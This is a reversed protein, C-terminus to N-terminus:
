LEKKEEEEDAEDGGEDDASEEAAEEEEADEPVEIEKLPAEPDVGLEKSMLRYVRNVLASPDAIDFGSEILATQFLVQASDHAAKDEKDSKVKALLDVIVPHNPNIELTKRGSMMSLQDKNQFAQAKMVKEQQASYGFQSTVVVVPSDTLRKSIEVKEVKVGADKMAGKETLETLSEKWWDTLPKYMDKVKSFRKKEAETEDLKVDAKQISVFKKGEYDALKQLCPEDLHDPLMLVEIDKKKFIQLSPAKKMTDISDGSMYYISEQSEQMRDLYKDLSVEKDEAKTTFFRLLKSLKSRNSDDEYCGMKLNKNFEKWFKSWAAEDDKKDKKEEPETKEKEEEGDEKEEDDDDGSDEEKALKKMLELVKRVLKKSIVKMIKNQQLQERSVNLPLDDSDVVGRVFNLYRPLLEDFKEAVLVRRVFLKVESKKQWYNDMMDFPAKKPLFLISKFEIEGEANFHTYALPDLYDKSISKYFENYEEETVDEKPRLWIAKQTNVQEWEYVTKKTPAKKEEEEEKEEDEKTEVDDKKEEEDEKDDDDEEEAEAEVEKKVKVYIPFQIFQSYKKVSDKLKDESLYDHADEKLHLTVRSGRGLTNGRPDDVVTFSADASSEWVHQVPDDNCKSTVSVKDAVLFASYFGVGFQGILNSDAGEAMAELFNTTGSKAVTGLNNILDAKSMGVGTDVISITKAEPDHEIKVELDKTDGLYSEDGVSHFRAKELADAANSILERLFVQKDTYLSNIIIDMLRSVEAQFEHKESGETMKERDSESFGDVVKDETTAAEEEARAGSWLQAALAALLLVSHLRM